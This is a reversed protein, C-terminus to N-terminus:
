GKEEVVELDNIDVFVPLLGFQIMAKKQANLERVISVQNTSKMRVMKGIEIQGGVLNYQERFKKEHEDAKAQAKKYFLLAELNKIADGKNKTSKWEFVAQKIKRELNKLEAMRDESVKNQLKLKETEQRHREKNLQIRMEANMREQDILLEKLSAKESEIKLLGQEASNLLEDLSLQDKQVLQESRNIISADLGIRKAISFTYSSGPKGIALQYLPMLSTEDFAMSANFMRKHKNAMVKLNLYHTTVIGRAHKHLLAELIAEAFAGGLNPDSGGGLEDILFLTKGNANETFHKMNMLHSSYTSLEFELSQTDGIHIFLQRFLGIKSRPDVPILLGAQLMIIILGATKMAVTKGGANPGSIIMIAQEEHIELNLPVVKKGSAKNYLYLLPHFAKVLRLEAQRSLEPMGADMDIALYARARIFDYQGCITYYSQLLPAYLSVKQTLATLIRFVERREEQELSFIDNNLGITEEPEVFVTKRTESEGHLIGKVKRKHEAFIAVVRRNNLYSEEIDTAFGAKAMKSVIKDFLRRLEGRTKSLQQRIRLLDKSAHDMVQCHEDLVANIEEKIAKEYYSEGLIKTLSPYFLQREENMWRFIDEANQLLKRISMWALHDLSSGPLSVLKLERAINHTLLPIGAQSQLLRKYEDTENLLNTIEDQYTSPKLNSALQLGFESKCHAVLLKRVKDFELQVEASAPFLKLESL